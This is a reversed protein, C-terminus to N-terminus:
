DAAIQSETFLWPYRSEDQKARETDRAIAQDNQDIRWAAFEKFEEVAGVTLIWSAPAPFPGLLSPSLPFNDLEGPDHGMYGHYIRSYHTPCLGRSVPDTSDCGPYLCTDM